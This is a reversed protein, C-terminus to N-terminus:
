DDDEHDYLSISRSVNKQKQLEEQNKQEPTELKESVFHVHHRFNHLKRAPNIKDKSKNREEEENEEETEEEERNKGYGNINYIKNKAPNLKNIPNPFVAFNKEFGSFNLPVM